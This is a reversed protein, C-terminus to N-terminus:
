FLDSYFRRKFDFNIGLGILVNTSVRPQWHKSHPLSKNTTARVRTWYEEQEVYGWGRGHIEWGLVWVCMQGSM